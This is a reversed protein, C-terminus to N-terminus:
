FAEPGSPVMKAMRSAGNYMVSGLPEESLGMRVLARLPALLFHALQPHVVTTYTSAVVRNVVIDGHMTHPAILGREEVREVSVVRARGDLTRLIDGTKVKAAATLVGNAYLYHKGSLTIVHNKNSKIRVFEHLGDLKKHSFFYVRSTAGREGVHVDHGAILEKMKIDGGTTHVIASAPFCIADDDDDDDDGDPTMDPSMEVTGEPDDDGGVNTPDPTDDPSGTPVTDALTDPSLDLPLLVRDIIHIVGNSASVTGGVTADPIQTAADVLTITSGNVQVTIKVGALPSLTEKNELEDREIDGPVIHYRLVTRLEDGLAAGIAAFAVSANNTDAGLDNATTLIAQNTPAFLTLEQGNDNLQNKIGAPLAGVILSFRKDGSAIEAITQQGVVLSGLALFTVCLLFTKM